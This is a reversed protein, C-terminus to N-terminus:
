KGKIGKRVRESLLQDYTKVIKLIEAMMQAYPEEDLIKNDTFILDTGYKKLLARITLSDKAKRSIRDPSTCIVSKITGNSALSLLTNLAPRSLRASTGSDSFITILKFGNKRCYEKIRQEQVEISNPEKSEVKVATRAYGIVTKNQKKPKM